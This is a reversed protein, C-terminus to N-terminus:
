CGVCNDPTNGSITSGMQTFRGGNVVLVAGGTSATATDRTVTGGQLLFTGGNWVGGGGPASNGEIRTARATATAGYDNLIGGGDGGTNNVMTSGDITATGDNFIGAGAGGTISSFQSCDPPVCKGTQNEISGLTSSVSNGSITGGNVVLTAHGNNFIGGGEGGKLM